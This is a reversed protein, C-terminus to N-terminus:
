VPTSRHYVNIFRRGTSQHVSVVCHTGVPLMENRQLVLMMIFWWMFPKQVTKWNRSHIQVMPHDPWEPWGIGRRSLFWTTVQIEKSCFYRWFYSQCNSNSFKIKVNCETWRRPTYMGCVAGLERLTNKGPQEGRVKGVETKAKQM